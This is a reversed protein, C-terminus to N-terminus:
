SVKEQPFQEGQPCNYRVQNTHEPNPGRSPLPSVGQEQSAPGGSSGRQGVGQGLSVCVKASVKDRGVM